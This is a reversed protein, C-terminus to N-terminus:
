GIIMLEIEVDQPATKWYVALDKHKKVKEWMPAYSDLQYYTTYTRRPLEQPPTKLHTLEVGPLAKQIIVPLIKKTGTKLSIDISELIEKADTLSKVALYFRNRGSFYEEKLNAAFYDGTPKLKVIYKPGATIEDLLTAILHFSKKFCDGLNLHDYQPMLSKGTADSGLVNIGESFTSLEGVLQRMVGYIHWPHVNSRILHDLMPIYKNISRLSLLFVMDRSGFEANNIGRDVKYSELENARSTLQNYTECVYEKLKKSSNITLSPPIYSETAIIDEGNREIKLVPVLEFDALYDLEYDFFIKLLYTMQKVQAPSGEGYLDKIQEPDISTIFRSNVNNFNENFSCVEVNKGYNTFKRVGIYVTMPKGDVINSEDFFRPEIVSNENIRVFTKDQFWINGRDISIVNNSLESKLFHLDEVGYFYPNLYNHYPTLLEHNYRDNLQLHQPQLFLGQYWFVPKEM